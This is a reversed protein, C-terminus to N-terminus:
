IFYFPCILALTKVDLIPPLFNKPNRSQFIRNLTPLSYLYKRRIIEDVRCNPQFLEAAYFSSSQYAFGSVSNAFAEFTLLLRNPIWDDAIIIIVAAVCEQSARFHFSFSTPTALNLYSPLVSLPVNTLFCHFLALPNM